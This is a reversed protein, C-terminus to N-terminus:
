CYYAAVMVARHFDGSVLGRYLARFRDLESAYVSCTEGTAENRLRRRRPRLCSLLKFSGADWVPMSGVGLRRRERVQRKAQSLRAFRMWFTRAGADLVRGGGAQSTRM